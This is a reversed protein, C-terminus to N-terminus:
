RRCLLCVSMRVATQMIVKSDGVEKTTPTPTVGAIGQMTGQGVVIGASMQIIKDKNSREVEEAEFVGGAESIRDEEAVVLVRLIKVKTIKGLDEEMVEVERSDGGAEVIGQTSPRPKSQLDEIQHLGM